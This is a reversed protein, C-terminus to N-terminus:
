ALDTSRAQLLVKQALCYEGIEQLREKSPALAFWIEAADADVLFKKGGKIVSVERYHEFLMKPSNGAELAVEAASKLQALRYSCFSHRCGNPVPKVSIQGSAGKVALASKRFTRSLHFEDQLGQLVFGDKKAFPQLWARLAPLIPILRRSATKAQDVGVEVYGGEGNWHIHEWRLRSIEASRLGAFGGLALFPVVRLNIKSLLVKFEDPTYIGIPSGAEKFRKSFEAETKLERPLHKKDKAFSFATILCTRYNNRTRGTVKLNSLVKDIDDARIDRIEGTLSKALTNLRAQMDYIYRRSKDQKIDEIIKKVLDPFSIPILAERKNQDALFAARFKAADVVDAGGLITYAEAYQRIAELLPVGQGLDGLIDLAEEITAHQKPSLTGIHATGETLEEILARARTRALELSTARERM